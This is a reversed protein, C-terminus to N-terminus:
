NKANKKLKEEVAVVVEEPTSAGATLGVTKFEYFIEPIEDESEIFAANKCLKQAKSFLRSTNASTKGGIVLIGEVEGCLKDLSAQREFTAPCISEVVTLNLISNQLIESIKKFNIISFTTQSLLVFKTSNFDVNEDNLKKILELADNESKILYFFFPLNKSKTNLKAAGEIGIVEGHNKDGTFIIRYGNGAFDSCKKQNTQVIPCTGNLIKAGTQILSSQTEPSIGHARIVVTDKKKIIPIKSEDIIKLGKEEFNKLAVSNHILPGFTYVQGEKNNNVSDLALSVARRVGACFGMCEARIIKM